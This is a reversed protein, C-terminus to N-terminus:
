TSGMGRGSNPSVKVLGDGYDGDVIEIGPLSERVARLSDDGVDVVFYVAGGQTRRQEIEYGAQEIQTTPELRM